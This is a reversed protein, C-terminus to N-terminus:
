KKRENRISEIILRNRRSMLGELKINYDLTIKGEGEDNVEYEVKNTVLELNIGGIPTQYRTVHKEGETFAMDVSGLIEKAYRNMHVIGENLTLITTCDQLETTVSEDYVLYLSNEDSYFVAETMVEMDEELTETRVFSGGKPELDQSYQKHSIVLDVDAKYKYEWDGKFIEKRIEEETIM